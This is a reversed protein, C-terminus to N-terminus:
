IWTLALIDDVVVDVPMGGVIASRVRLEMPEM